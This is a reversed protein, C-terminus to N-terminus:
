RYSLQRKLPDSRHSTLSVVIFTDKQGIVETLLQFPLRQLCYTDLCLLTLVARTWVM